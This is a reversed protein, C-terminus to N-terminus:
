LQKDLPFLQIALCYIRDMKYKDPQFKNNFHRRFKKIMEKAEAMKESPFALTISTIDRQLIDDERLSAKAKNLIEGQFSKIAESPIDTPTSLNQFGDKWKGRSNKILYGLRFLRRVAEVVTEVDLGLKKAIWAEDNKFEALPLMELIAFHYWYCIVRFADLNIQEFKANSIVEELQKQAAIRQNLKRQHQAMASLKFITKELHSLQLQEIVKDLKTESIGRKHNIIQSLGSFSMQLDRSFARLSYLPNRQCRIHLERKLFDQYEIKEM